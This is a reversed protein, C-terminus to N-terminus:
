RNGGKLDGRAPQAEVGGSGALRALRKSDYEAEIQATLEDLFASLEGEVPQWPSAHWQALYDDTGVMGSRMAASDIVQMFRQSLPRSTRNRGQLAKIQSPIDRWYIIQYKGSM